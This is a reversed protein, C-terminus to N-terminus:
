LQREEARDAHGAIAALCNLAARMGKFLQDKPMASFTPVHVFGGKIQTNQLHALLEFMVSNCVYTGATNSIEAAVEAALSAQKMQVIPLTSFHGDPAANLIKEGVPALGDNDLRSSERWNIGIREFSIKDRRSAVGMAVVFDPSFQEIHQKLQGFAKKFSVPLVVSELEFPFKEGKLENALIESPNERHKDFIEFGSILVRM